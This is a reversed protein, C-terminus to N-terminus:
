ALRYGALVQLARGVELHDTKGRVRRAIVHADRTPSRVSGRIDNQAVRVASAGDVRWLGDPGASVFSAEPSDLVILNSTSSEPTAIGGPIVDIGAEKQRLYLLRTGWGGLWIGGARDKYMAYYPAVPFGELRRATRPADSFPMDCEYVGADTAILIRREDLLLKTVPPLGRLGPTCTGTDVDYLVIGGSSTGAYLTKGPFALATVSRGDPISAFVSANMDVALTLPNFRHLGRNTGVWLTGAGDEAISRFKPDQFSRDLDADPDYRHVQFTRGDYRDLGDATLVWLFGKADQNIAYVDCHSLGSSEGIASVSWDGSWVITMSFILSLVCVQKKGIKSKM